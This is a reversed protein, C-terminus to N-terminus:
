QANLPKGNKMTMRENEGGGCQMRDSFRRLFFHAGHERGIPACICYM